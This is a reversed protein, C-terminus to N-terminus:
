EPRDDDADQLSRLWFDENQYRAALAEMNVPSPETTFEFNGILNINRGVPSTSKLIKVAEIDGAAVKQEYVRGPSSCPTTTFSPTQSSASCENWIATRGRNECPVKPTSVWCGQDGRRRITQRTPSRPLGPAVGCPSWAVIVPVKEAGAPHFVDVYITVGDRLEVAVDKDFVIDVPLDSSLRM